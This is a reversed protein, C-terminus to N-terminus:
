SSSVISQDTVNAHQCTLKPDSQACLSGLSPQLHACLARLFRERRREALYSVNATLPPIRPRRSRSNGSDSTSQAFSGDTRGASCISQHSIQTTTTELFAAALVSADGRRDPWESPVQSSDAFRAFSLEMRIAARRENARWRRAAPPATAILAAIQALRVNMPSPQTPQTPQTQRPEPPPWKSPM